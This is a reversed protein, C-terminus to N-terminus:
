KPRSAKKYKHGYVELVTIEKNKTRPEQNKTRPEQNKTRPALM